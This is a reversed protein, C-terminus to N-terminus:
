TASFLETSHLCREDTVPLRKQKLKFKLIQM